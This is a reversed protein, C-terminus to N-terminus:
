RWYRGGTDPPAPREVSTEMDLLEVSLPPRTRMLPRLYWRALRNRAWRLPGTVVPAM